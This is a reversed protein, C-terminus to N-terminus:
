RNLSFRMWSASGELSWGVWERAKPCTWGGWPGTHVDVQGEQETPELRAWWYQGMEGCESWRFASSQTGWM